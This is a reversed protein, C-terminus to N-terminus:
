HNPFHKVQAGCSCVKRYWLFIYILSFIFAFFSISAGIKFSLSEFVFRVTHRGAPVYVARLLYDAQYVKEKKGDVFVKWGPYNTDSLVLFGNSMTEADITVESPEYRTITVRSDDIPVGKKMEINPDNELIVEQLPKFEPSRLYALIEKKVPILKFNHVIFARPIVRTNEYILLDKKYILKLAQSNLPEETIFYKVNLLNLLPSNYNTLPKFEISFEYPDKNDIAGLVESFRRLALPSDQIVTSVSHYSLIGRLLYEIKYPIVIRPNRYMNQTDWQKKFDEDQWNIKERNEIPLVRYIGTDKNKIFDLEEMPPYLSKPNSITLTRSGMFLLEASLFLIISYAIYGQRKGHFNLYLKFLLVSGALAVFPFVVTVSPFRLNHTFIDFLFPIKKDFCYQAPHNFHFLGKDVLVSIGLKALELIWNKAFILLLNISIFILSLTIFLAKLVRYVWRSDQANKNLFVYDAGGGALIAMFPFYLMEWRNITLLFFQPFFKYITFRVQKFGLIFLYLFISLLGYRVFNIQSIKSKKLLALLAFILAIYGIYYCEWSIGWFFCFVKGNYSIDAVLHPVVTNVLVSSFMKYDWGGEKLWRIGRISRHSLPVLELTPIIQIAGIALGLVFGCVLLWIWRIFDKKTNGKEKRSNFLKYLSYAFGIIFVYLSSSMAGNLVASGLALGLLVSYLFKKKEFLYEIILLTLPLFVLPGVYMVWQIELLHGPCLMYVLASVLAGYVSFRIKRMYLYMFLGSLLINTLRILGWTYLSPFLNFIVDVPSFINLDNTAHNPYGNMNYPNWLPLKGEKLLQASLLKQPFINYINDWHANAPTIIFGLFIAKWCLVILVLLLFAVALYDKKMSKTSDKIIGTFIDAPWVM